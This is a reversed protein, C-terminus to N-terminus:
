PASTTRQALARRALRTVVAVVAITAVLGVAYLAWEAATRPRTEVGARALSGFILSRGLLFACTAGLTSAFSVLASGRVVGFLAGAGLGLASGPILLVTAAVYRAVFLVQGWAGLQEIWGLTNRSQARVDSTVLLVAVALLLLVLGIARGWLLHNM